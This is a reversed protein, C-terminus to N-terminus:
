RRPTDARVYLVLDVGPRLPYVAGTRRYAPGLATRLQTAEPEKASGVVIADTYAGARGHFGVNKYHNLYWPLPWYEPAAVAIRTDTGTGAREAARNIEELLQFVDRRTHSYVYPYRDNDYERFNLIVAQVTAVLLAAGLVAGVAAERKYGARSAWADLQEIAYGGILAMPVTFNLMLWPTKYPVLSYAALTGFAWAGAFVAFRNRARYLAAAAGCVALLFLLAEEQGLWKLYNHWPKAHFESVGTSTWVKLAALADAIGKPNKFFSSYLVLNVVLFIIFASGFLIVLRAPDDLPIRAHTAGDEGGSAEARRSEAWGFAGALKMYSWAVGWALLLVVATIIATEKTAFMLAASAAALMLYRARGTDYYWVSAVVIGLAFFVFMSEHIFYRSQYVAGPSVAVLAAGALAGVTGLHRRLCLVLAVTAIGFVAPVLRVAVENLGFLAATPLTFYYLTPGHYNTPDYVYRGERLLNTLFFGNVGEDHHMPKLALAYLRLVAAVFLTAGSALTWFQESVGPSDGGDDADSNFARADRGAGTGVQPPRPAGKQGGRRKSGRRKTSATAM